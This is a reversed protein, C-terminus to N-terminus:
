KEKFFVLESGSTPMQWLQWKIVYFNVNSKICNTTLKRTLYFMHYQLCGKHADVSTNTSQLFYTNTPQLFYFIPLNIINKKSIKHNDIYFKHDDIKLIKKKSFGMTWTVLVDYLHPFTWPYGLFVERFFSIEM